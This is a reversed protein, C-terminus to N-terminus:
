GAIIRHDTRRGQAAEITSTRQTFLDKLRREAVGVRLDADSGGLDCARFSPRRVDVDGELLRELIRM